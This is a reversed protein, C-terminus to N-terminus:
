EPWMFIIIILAISILCTYFYIYLAVAIIDNESWKQMAFEFMLALKTPHQAVKANRWMFRGLRYYLGLPSADM